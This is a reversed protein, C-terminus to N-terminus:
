HRQIRTLRISVLSPNAGLSCITRIAACARQISVPKTLTYGGWDVFLLFVRVVIVDSVILALRPIFPGTQRYPPFYHWMELKSGRRRHEHSDRSPNSEALQSGPKSGLGPLVGPYLFCWKIVLFYRTVFTDM